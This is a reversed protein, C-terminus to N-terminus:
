LLKWKKLIVTLTLHIKESNLLETRNRFRSYYNTACNAEEEKKKKKLFILDPSDAAGCEINDM